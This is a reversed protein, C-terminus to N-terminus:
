NKIVKVLYSTGVKDILRIIYIGSEFAGMNISPDESDASIEGRDVITGKSSVVEYSYNKNTALDFKVWGDHKCCAWKGIV